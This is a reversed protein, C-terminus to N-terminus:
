LQQNLAGKKNLVSCYYYVNHLLWIEGVITIIFANYQVNKRQSFPQMFPPLSTTKGKQFGWSPPSSFMIPEFQQQKTNEQFM